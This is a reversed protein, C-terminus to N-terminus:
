DITDWNNGQVFDDLRAPNTATCTSKKYHMSRARGLTDIPADADLGAGGSIFEDFTPANVAHMGDIEISWPLVTGYPPGDVLRMFDYGADPVTFGDVTSDKLILAGRCASTSSAIVIPHGGTGGKTYNGEYRLGDFTVAYLAQQPSDIANDSLITNDLISVDKVRPASDGDGGIVVRRYSAHDIFNNSVEVLETINLGGDVDTGSRGTVRVPALTTTNQGSLFNRRAIVDYNGRGPTGTSNDIVIAARWDTFPGNDEIVVNRGGLVRLCATGGVTQKRGSNYRVTVDEAALAGPSNQSNGFLAIMDDQCDEIHNREVLINQAGIGGAAIHIGDAFVQSVTNGRIWLGVCGRGAVIGQGGNIVCDHINGTM